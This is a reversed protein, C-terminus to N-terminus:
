KLRSSPRKQTMCVWDTHENSLVWELLTKEDANLNGLPKKKRGQKLVVIQINEREAHIGHGM